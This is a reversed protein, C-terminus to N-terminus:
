NIPPVLSLALIVQGSVGNTDMGMASSQMQVASVWANRTILKACKV